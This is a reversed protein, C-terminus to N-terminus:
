AMDRRITEMAHKIIKASAKYANLLTEELWKEIELNSVDPHYPLNTTVGVNYENDEVYYWVNLVYQKVEPSGSNKSYAVFGVRVKLIPKGKKTSFWGTRWRISLKYSLPCGNKNRETDLYLKFSKAFDKIQPEIVPLWKPVMNSLSNVELIEAKEQEEKDKKEQWQKEESAIRNLIGM